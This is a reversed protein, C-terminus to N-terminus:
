KILYIQTRSINFRTDCLDNLYNRNIENIKHYKFKTNCNQTAFKISIDIKHIMFIIEDIKIKENNFLITQNMFISLDRKAKNIHIEIRSNNNTDDIMIPKVKNIKICSNSNIQKNIIKNNPHPNSKELDSINKKLMRTNEIIDSVFINKTKQLKQLYDCTYIM